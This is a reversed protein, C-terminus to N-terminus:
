IHQFDVVFVIRDGKAQIEPIDVDNKYKSNRNEKEKIKIHIFTQSEGNFHQTSPAKAVFQFVILKSLTM